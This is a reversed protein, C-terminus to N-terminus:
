WSGWFFLILRRGRLSDLRVVTGDLDPLTLDPAPDGITPPQRLVTAEM